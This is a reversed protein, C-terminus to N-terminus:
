LIESKIKQMDNFFYYFYRIQRSTAKISHLKIQKIMCLQTQDIIKEQCFGNGNTVILTKASRKEGVKLM